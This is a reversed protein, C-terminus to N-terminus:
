CIICCVVRGPGKSDKRKTHSAKGESQVTKEASGAKRKDVAGGYLSRSVAAIKRKSTQSSASPQSPSSPTPPLPRNLTQSPLRAPLTQHRV